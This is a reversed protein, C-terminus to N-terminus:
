FLFINLLSRDIHAGQCIQCVHAKRLRAAERRRRHPPHHPGGAARPGPHRGDGGQGGDRPDGGWVGRLRPSGCGSCLGRM